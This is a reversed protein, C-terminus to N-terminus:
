NSEPMDYRKPAWTNNQGNVDPLKNDPDIVVSVIPSTSNYRFKWESGKQWIEVPFEIRNKKGNSERIDLVVPMPLQELNNITIISGNKPSQDIYMVDSVSQDLKWDNAIWGKWFWGLDEGAADEMTEFFDFPTPHKFAWRKVYEKLAFDFRDEGIVMERLLTLGMGPKFYAALGFNKPQITEPINLIADRGYMYPAYQRPNIPSYYEGDNFAKSSLDNIFTNFGEDMWAYKRENSGVIMPFWNHGFEHDTVGWLSAGEDGAGCFVIGPYEMGSVVGAVNTAVPYTYEYIYNSYFEISAKVYETSRGWKDNGGSEQPYVSQALAKKGSPLNIRAADWVFSKSSAWAVDRTQNCRFKWTLMGSNSPRSSSENVEEATRIMVTKESQSAEKLRNRQTTTLVDEPNLLEGSGVVIHDYPVTLNFQMDGYELYFEGGGIYPLVNWGEIDDYVAMRPYWQALEYITGDNAAFKGLRDSGYRPILFDYNMSIIIKEGTRLPESLRIQMRTDSIVHSMYTSSVATKKKSVQIDKAAKVNSINYGGEFGMNGHRGGELPTTKGGRSNDNFLNQDLQVWVFSMADPSNNTYTISVDGIIKNNAVDLTANILYDASNQWYQPGPAGTGSRYVTGPRFAFLPDFAEKHDYKSTEQAHIESILGSILLFTIVLIRNM